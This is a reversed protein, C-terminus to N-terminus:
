TRSVKFYMLPAMSVM